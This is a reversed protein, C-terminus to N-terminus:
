LSVEQTVDGDMTVKGKIWTKSPGDDLTAELDWYGPPIRTQNASLSLVIIGDAKDTEDIAFEVILDMSNEPRERIQARFTYDSLDRPEDIDEVDTFILQHVYDDGRYIKLDLIGPDNM